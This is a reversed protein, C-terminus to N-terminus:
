WPIIRPTYDEAARDGPALGAYVYAGPSGSVAHDVNMTARFPPDPDKRDAYIEVKVDDPDILGLHVEMNYLYVDGRRTIIIRGFRVDRWRLVMTREWQLLNAGARGGNEARACYAEALPIYHGEAYQRVTRNASFAPTLRAMSERVREVWRRSVGSEDREYYLRIIENELRFYLAD